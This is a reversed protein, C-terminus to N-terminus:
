TTANLNKAYKDMKSDYEYDYVGKRSDFSAMSPPKFTGEPIDAPLCKVDKVSLIDMMDTYIAVSKNSVVERSEIQGMLGRIESIKYRVGLSPRDDDWVYVYAGDNIVHTKAHRGANIIAHYKGQSMWMETTTKKSLSIQNTYNCKFPTWMFLAQGINKLEVPATKNESKNLSKMTSTTTDLSLFNGTISEISEQNPTNCICGSASLVAIIVLAANILALHKMDHSRRPTNKRLTGGRKPM